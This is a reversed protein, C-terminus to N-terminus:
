RVLLGQLEQPTLRQCEGRVRWPADHFDAELSMGQAGHLIDPCPGVVQVGFFPSDFCCM